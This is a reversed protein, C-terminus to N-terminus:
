FARDMSRACFVLRDKAIHWLPRRKLMLEYCLPAASPKPLGDSTSFQLATRLSRYSECIPSVPSNRLTEFIDEKAKPILGLVALGLKDEIEGPSKFTDDLIELGAVAAFAGLLGFVFWLMLNKQLDPKYPAGPRQAFDIVTVNNTGTAGAVGLDRPIQNEDNM